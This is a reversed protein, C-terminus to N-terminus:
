SSSLPPAPPLEPANCHHHFMEFDQGDPDDDAAESEEDYPLDIGIIHDRKFKVTDGPMLRPIGVPQNVLTGVLHRRKVATVTVWMREGWGDRMEFLLKVVLGPVVALRLDEDPIEFTDPYQRNREVGSELHWRHIIRGTAAWQLRYGLGEILAVELQEAVWFPREVRPVAHLEALLEQRRPDERDFALVILRLAAGPAFGFVLLLILFTPWSLVHFFLSSM